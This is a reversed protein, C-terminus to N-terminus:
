SRTKGTKETVTIKVVATAALMADPYGKGIHQPTYKKVIGDLAKVIEERDKVVAATGKIIVSTYLTGTNCPEAGHRISDMADAEFGVNPNAAINELKDGANLGHFYIANDQYVFNVPVIYPCGDKGITALRGVEATALFADIASAPLQHKQMKAQM